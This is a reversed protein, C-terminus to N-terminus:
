LTEGCLAGCILSLCAGLMGGAVVDTPYNVGCVVRATGVIGSAVLLGAGVKRSMLFVTMACAFCLATEVSPFANDSQETLLLNVSAAIYPRPRLIPTQLLRWALFNVCFIAATVAGLSLCLAAVLRWRRVGKPEPLLLLVGMSVVGILPLGFTAGWRLFFDATASQGAQKNLWRLIVADEFWFNSEM